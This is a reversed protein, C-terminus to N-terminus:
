AVGRAPKTARVAEAVIRTRLALADTQERLLRLVPAPDAALLQELELREAATRPTSGLEMSVGAWWGRLTDARYTAVVVRDPLIRDWYTIRYRGVWGDTWDIGYHLLLLLREAVHEAGELPPLEPVTSLWTQSPSASPQLPLPTRM